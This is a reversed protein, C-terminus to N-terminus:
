TYGKVTCAYVDTGLDDATDGEGIAFVRRFAILGYYQADPRTDDLIVLTPQARRDALMRRFQPSIDSDVYVTFEADDSYDREVIDRVGWADAQVDSYDDIEDSAGVEADGAIFAQGLVFLGCEANGGTNDILVTYVANRYPLFDTILAEPAQVIPYFLYEWWDGVPENLPIVLPGLVVGDIPDTQTITVSPGVLGRLALTDVYESPTVTVLITNANVTKTGVRQDFMAYKNIISVLGWWTASAALDPQHGTNTGTNISEYVYGNFTSRQGITYGTAGNYAAPDLTTGVNTSTLAGGNAITVPPIVRM